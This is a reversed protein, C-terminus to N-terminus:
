IINFYEEIECDLIVFKGNSVNSLKSSVTEMERDLLNDKSKIHIIEIRNGTSVVLSDENWWSFDFVREKIFDMKYEITDKQSSYVYLVYESNLLGVRSSNPSLLNKLVVQKKEEENYKANDKPIKISNTNKWLISFVQIEQNSNLTTVYLM